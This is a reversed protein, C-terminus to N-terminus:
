GENRRTTAFDGAAVSSAPQKTGDGNDPQQQQQEVSTTTKSRQEKLAMGTPTLLFDDNDLLVTQLLNCEITNFQNVSTIEYGMLVALTADCMNCLKRHWGVITSEAAHHLSEKVWVSKQGADVMSRLTAYLTSSDMMDQKETCTFVRHVLDQSVMTMRSSRDMIDMPSAPDKWSSCSEFFAAHLADLLKEILPRRRRGGSDGAESPQQLTQAMKDHLQVLLDQFLAVPQQVAQLRNSLLSLSDSNSSQQKEGWSFIHQKSTVFRATDLLNSKCQFLTCRLTECAVLAEFYEV